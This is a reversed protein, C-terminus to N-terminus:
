AQPQREEAVFGFQLGTVAKQHDGQEPGHEANDARQWQDDTIVYRYAEGIRHEFGDGPEGGGAGGDQGADVKQGFRYEEVALM